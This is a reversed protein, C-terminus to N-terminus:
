AMVEYQGSMERVHGKSGSFMQECPNRFQYENESPQERGEKQRYRSEVRVLTMQLEPFPDIILESKSAFHKGQIRQAM